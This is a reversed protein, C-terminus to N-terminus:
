WPSDPFCNRTTVPRVKQVLLTMVFLEVVKECYSIDDKRLDKVKGVEGM